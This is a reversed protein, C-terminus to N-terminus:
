NQTIRKKLNSSPEQQLLDNIKERGGELEKKLNHKEEIARKTRTDLIRIIDCICYGQYELDRIQDELDKLAPTKKPKSGKKNKLEATAQLTDEVAPIIQELKVTYNM